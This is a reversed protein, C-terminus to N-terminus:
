CIWCALVTIDDEKGGEWHHGTAKKYNRQFPTRLTKDKSVAFAREAIVRSLEKANDNTMYNDANRAKHDRIIRIIENNYLNDLLGDSAVILVDGYKVTVRYVDSSDPYDQCIKHSRMAEELLDAERTLGNERLKAIQTKEPLRSLQYPTNFAHQQERSRLIMFPQGCNFRILLFGSDGLNACVLENNPNIVCITATSSGCENVQRYSKQM